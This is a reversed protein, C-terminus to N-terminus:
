ALMKPLGDEGLEQAIRPLGALAFAEDVRLYGGNQHRLFEVYSWPLRLGVAAEARAVMEDTLPAGYTRDLRRVREAEMKARRRRSFLRGLRSMSEIVDESEIEARPQWLRRALEAIEERADM